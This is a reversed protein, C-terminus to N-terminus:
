DNFLQFILKKGDTKFTVEYYPKFCQIDKEEIYLETEDELHFTIFYRPTTRTDVHIYREEDDGIFLRIQEAPDYLLSTGSYFDPTSYTFMFSSVQYILEEFQALDKENM